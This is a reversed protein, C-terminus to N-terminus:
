DKCIHCKCDNNHSNCLKCKCNKPIWSKIREKFISINPSEKVKKPLMTNWVIPGFSRISGQGMKVTRVNPRHFKDTIESYSIIENMFPPCLNNKVNYMERALAHINRHHISLSKDIELLESFSSTYNNHVLRLAREHIHNIKKDMKKSCFMWILSCYSFQSEIFAKLILRRKHFPLFRAIRALASVKCNAKKCIKSLHLNFNINKDINVGLLKETHSEWVIENGIKVFLVEETGHTLFHCKSENLKM